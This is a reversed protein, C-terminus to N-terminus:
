YFIKIIITFYYSFVAILLFVLWIPVMTKNNFGVGFQKSNGDNDFLTRPKIILIVIVIILYIIISSKIPSTHIIELFNM